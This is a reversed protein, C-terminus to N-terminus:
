WVLAAFATNEEAWSRNEPLAPFYCVSHVSKRSLAWGVSPASLIINVTTKVLQMFDNWLGLHLPSPRAVGMIALGKSNAFIM